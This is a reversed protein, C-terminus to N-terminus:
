NHELVLYYIKDDLSATEPWRVLCLLSESLTAVSYKLVSQGSDAEIGLPTLYTDWINKLGFIALLFDIEAKIWWKTMNWPSQLNNKSISKVSSNYVQDVVSKRAKENLIQNEM